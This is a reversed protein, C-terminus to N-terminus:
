TLDHLHKKLVRFVNTSAFQISGIDFASIFTLTGPICSAKYKTEGNDVTDVDVTCQYDSPCVSKQDPGPSCPNLCRCDECGAANVWQEIGYPCRTPEEYLQKCRSKRAECIDESPKM